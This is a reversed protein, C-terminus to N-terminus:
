PADCQPFCARRWDGPHPGSRESGLALFITDDPGWSLGSSNPCDCLKLSPRGAFTGAVAVKRIEGDRLSYAVWEGHPAFTVNKAGETGALVAVESAMTRKFLRAIGDPSSSVYIVTRGDPSVTVDSINAGTAAMVPAAIYMLLMALVALLRIRITMAQRGEAAWPKEATYPRRARLPRPPRSRRHVGRPAGQAGRRPRAEHRPRSLGRGITPGSDQFRSSVPYSLPHHHVSHSRHSAFRELCSTPIRASPPHGCTRCPGCRGRMVHSSLRPFPFACRRRSSDVEGVAAVTQCPRELPSPAKTRCRMSLHRGLTVM